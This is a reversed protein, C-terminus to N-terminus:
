SKHTTAYETLKALTKETLLRNAIDQKNEPKDLEAQMAADTYQGKLIQLRIELEEPTVVIGEKDAIESLALGAKVSTEADPRNRKRHEDETIGEEALHEQWTQGKYALNQRESQEAREVQQDILVDPVVLKTKTAIQSVLNNDFEVQARQDAEAQLQRKIDAKLDALTKFPGAKTAFADDLKPKTMESVKSVKVWFTVKKNQLTSVAYDKPFTVDFTKEQGVGLGALNPEFGPIFTNSGITIPYNQGDAGSVPQGKSDTGKFDIILEDGTKAPRKVETREAQQQQLGDLVEQVEKASVSIKPKDLKINKYNALEIEGIAEVEADFELDNFPVFENINVQPQSVPRINESKVAQVYMRNVAEELFEQQMLNPDVHKEILNLPAKGARFGPLKVHKSGLHRLVQQKVNDLLQQDATVTLKFKTDTLKTTKVQM